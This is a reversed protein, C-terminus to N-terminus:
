LDYGVAVRFRPIPVDKPQPAGVLMGVAADVALHLGFEFRYEYGLMALMVFHQLPRDRRVDIDLYYFAAYYFVHQWREGFRRAFSVEPIFTFGLDDVFPFGPGFDQKQMKFEVRTRFGLFWNRDESEWLSLKGHARLVFTTDIGGVDLGLDVLDGYGRRFGVFVAPYFPLETDAKLIFAVKGHPVIGGPGIFIPSAPNPASPAGLALLGVLALM